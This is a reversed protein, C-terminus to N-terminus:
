DKLAEAVFTFLAKTAPDDPRGLDANIKGHTTISVLRWIGILREHDSGPKPQSAAPATTNSATATRGCGERGSALGSSLM